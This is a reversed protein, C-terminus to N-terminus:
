MRFNSKWYLDFPSYGDSAASSIQWTIWNHCIAAAVHLILWWMQTQRLYFCDQLHFKTCMYNYSQTGWQHPLLPHVSLGWREQHERHPRVKSSRHAVAAPKEQAHGPGGGQHSQHLAESPWRGPGLWGSCCLSSFTLDEVEGTYEASM